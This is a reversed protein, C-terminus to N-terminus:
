APRIIVIGCQYTHRSTIYSYTNGACVPCIFGNPWRVQVLAAACVEETEFRRQWELLSVEPMKM